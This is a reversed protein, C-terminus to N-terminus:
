TIDLNTCYFLGLELEGCGSVVSAVGAVTGGAKDSDTLHWKGVMGTEYGNKSFVQALNGDSCDRGDMVKGTNELKTNPISAVVPHINNRWSAKRATAARSAYRGTVTSFRSLHM